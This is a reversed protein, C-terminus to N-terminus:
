HLRRRRLLGVAGAALLALTGPEPIQGTLLQEGETAVAGGNYSFLHSFPDWSVKLYGENGAFTMFGIYQDTFATSWDDFTYGLFAPIAAEGNKGYGASNPNIPANPGLVSPVAAYGYGAKSGSSDWAGAAMFLGNKYSNGYNSGNLYLPTGDGLGILVYTQPTDDGANAIFSGSDSFPVIAADAEQPALALAGSAIAAAGLGYQRLRDLRAEQILTM